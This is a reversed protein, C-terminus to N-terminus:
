SKSEEKGDKQISFEAKMMKTRYRDYLLTILVIGAISLGGAKRLLRERQILDQSSECVPGDSAAYYGEANVIDTKEDAQGENRICYVVYRYRGHSMYPHCTILTIMDKGEQIRVADSDYPEIIRISEVQYGLKEWPNTIYVEDGVSLKEIDLFYPAGRWGRHGAIVSNTNMGGIPLSTQGLIAAGKSMNEASAGVYLPLAVDMAPIEIYGFEENEPNEMSIPIQEYSYVDKFDAQETEYIYTNYALAQQYLGDDDREVSKFEEIYKQTHRKLVRTKIDPYLFLCLGAMILLVGFLRKIM